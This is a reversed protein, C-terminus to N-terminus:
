KARMQTSLSGRFAIWPGSSGLIGVGPAATFAQRGLEQMAAKGSRRFCGKAGGILNWNNGEPQQKQIDIEM